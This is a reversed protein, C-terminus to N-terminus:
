VAMCSLDGADKEVGTLMIVGVHGIYKKIVQFQGSWIDIKSNTGAAM